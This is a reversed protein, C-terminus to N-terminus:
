GNLAEFKLVLQLNLEKREKFDDLYKGGFELRFAQKPKIIMPPNNILQGEYLATKRVTTTGEKWSKLYLSLDKPRTPHSNLGPLLHVPAVEGAVRQIKVEAITTAVTTQQNLNTISYQPSFVTMVGAADDPDHSIDTTGFLMKKPIMLDIESADSIKVTINQCTGDPLYIGVKHRGVSTPVTEKITLQDTVENGTVLEWGSAQARRLIDKKYAEQDAGLQQAEALTYAVEDAALILYDEEPKPLDGAVVYLPALFVNSRPSGDPNPRQGTLKIPVMKKGIENTLGAVTAPDEYTATVEEEPYVPDFIDAFFTEKIGESDEAAPLAEGLKKYVPKVIGTPSSSDNIIVPVDYEFYVDKGNELHEVVKLHVNQPTNIPRLNKLNTYSEEALILKGSAAKQKASGSMTFVKWLSKRNFGDGHIQAYDFHPLEKRLALLNADILAVGGAKTVEFYISQRRSTLVYRDKQRMGEQGELVYKKDGDPCWMQLLGGEPLYWKGDAYTTQFESTLTNKKDKGYATFTDQDIGAAFSDALYTHQSIASNPFTQLGFYPDEGYLDHVRLEDEEYQDDLYSDSQGSDTVTHDDIGRTYSLYTAGNTDKLVPFAGATRGNDGLDYSGFVLSRGWVVSVKVPQSECIQGASTRGLFHMALQHQNPAGELQTPDTVLTAVQEREEFVTTISLHYSELQERNKIVMDLGAEDTYFIKDIYRWIDIDAARTGLNITEPVDEKLSIKTIRDSEKAVPAIAAKTLPSAEQVEENGNVAGSSAETKAFTESTVTVAERDSSAMVEGADVVITPIILLFVSLVALVSLKKLIKGM